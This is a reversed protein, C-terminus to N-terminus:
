PTGLLRDLRLENIRRLEERVVGAETAADNPLRERLAALLADASRGTACALFVHGFRAEYAANAESLERLVGREAGRLGSQERESAADGARPAGLPAHGALADHLDAPLPRRDGRRQRRATRHPRVLPPRGRRRRGLRPQLLDGAPAGPTRDARHRGARRPCRPRPTAQDRSPGGPFRHWGCLSPRGCCATLVKNFQKRRRVPAGPRAGPVPQSGGPLARRTLVEGAPEPLQVGHVPQCRAGVRRDGGRPPRHVGRTGGAPRGGAAEGDPRARGAAPRRVAPGDRGAAPGARQEPAAAAGRRRARGGLGARRGRRPGRGPRARHRRGGGAAAEPRRRAPPGPCRESRAGEQPGAPPEQRGTVPPAEGDPLVSVQLSIRNAGAALTERLLRAVAALAQEADGEASTGFPGVAVALGADAAARRAADAHAPFGDLDFPETTFEVM